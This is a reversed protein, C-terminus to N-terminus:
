VSQSLRSDDGVAQRRAEKKRAGTSKRPCGVSRGAVWSNLQTLSIEGRGRSRRRRRRRCIRSPPFKHSPSIQGDTARDAGGEGVSARESRLDSLGDDDDDPRRFARHVSVSDALKEEKAAGLKSAYSTACLSYPFYCFYVFRIQEKVSNPVIVLRDM